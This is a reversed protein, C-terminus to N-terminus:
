RGKIKEAAVGCMECVEKENYYTKLKNSYLVQLKETEEISLDHVTIHRFEEKKLLRNLKTWLFKAVMENDKSTLFVRKGVLYKVDTIGFREM